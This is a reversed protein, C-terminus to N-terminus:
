HCAKSEDYRGMGLVHRRPQEARCRMRTSPAWFRKRSPSRASSGSARRTTKASIRSCRASLRQSVVSRPSQGARAPKGSDALAYHQRAEAYHGTLKLLWGLHYHAMAVDVHDGRPGRSRRLTASGRALRSRPAHRRAHLPRSRSPRTSSAELIEIGRRSLAEGDALRGQSRYLWALALPEDGRLDQEGREHRCINLAEQM